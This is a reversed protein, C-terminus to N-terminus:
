RAVLRQILMSLSQPEIPKTLHASFDANLASKMERDMGFGTLAVVPVAAFEETQRIRKVFEFGDIGPMGIDSVIVDPRFLRAAELGTMGDRAAEVSYGLHELESKLIFRIDDSDEVLLIRIQRLRSNPFSSM